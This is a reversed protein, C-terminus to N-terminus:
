QSCMSRKFFLFVFMYLIGEVRNLKIKGWGKFGLEAMGGEKLAQSLNRKLVM